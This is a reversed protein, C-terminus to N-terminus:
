THVGEKLDLFATIGEEGAIDILLLLLFVILAM